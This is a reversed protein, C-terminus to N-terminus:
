RRSEPAAIRVNTRRTRVNVTPLGPFRRDQWDDALRYLGRDLQIVRGSRLLPGLYTARARLVETKDFDSMLGFAALVRCM